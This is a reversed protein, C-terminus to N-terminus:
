ACLFFSISDISVKPEKRPEQIKLLKLLEQLIFFKIFMVHLLQWIMVQDFKVKM